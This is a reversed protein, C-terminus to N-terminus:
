LSSMPQQKTAVGLISKLQHYLRDVRDTSLTPLTDLLMVTTAV